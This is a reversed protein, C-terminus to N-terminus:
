DTKCICDEVKVINDMNNKAISTYGLIVNMPTRIEHSMNSLFEGKARSASEAQALAEEILMQQEMEKKLVDEINRITM